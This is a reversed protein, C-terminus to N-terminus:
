DLTLTPVSLANTRTSNIRLFTTSRRERLLLLGTCYAAPFNKLGGKVGYRPLESSYASCLVRDGTLTAFIIQCIVHKNTFRVVLRYKHMNYKNKSQAVLRKRAYYDTKNERRRRFKTQYRM